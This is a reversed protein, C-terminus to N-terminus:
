KIQTQVSSEQQNREEDHGERIGEYHLFEPSPHPVLYLVVEIPLFM